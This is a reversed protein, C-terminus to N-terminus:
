CLPVLGIVTASILSASIVRLVLSNVSTISAALKSKELSWCKIYRDESCTFLYCIHGIIGHLKCPGETALGFMM